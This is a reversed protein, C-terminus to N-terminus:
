VETIQVEDTPEIKHQTRHSSIRETSVSTSAQYIREIQDWYVSRDTRHVCKLM